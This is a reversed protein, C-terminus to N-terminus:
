ELTLAILSYLSVPSVHSTFPYMLATGYPGIMSFIHFIYIYM